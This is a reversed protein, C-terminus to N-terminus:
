WGAESGAAGQRDRYQIYSRGGQEEQGGEGSKAGERDSGAGTSSPM